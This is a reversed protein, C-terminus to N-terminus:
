EGPRTLGGSLLMGDIRSTALWLNELSNVYDLSTQFYTRQSTLLELYGFEGDAYGRQVLALSETATPLIEDRYHRVQQQANEYRNMADALRHQIALEVRQVERRAATLEAYARHINGQNRDFLKLPVAVSVSAVTDESANNFRTGAELEINPVRGARQRAVNCRAREVESWAKALEPSHGLLRSLAEGWTLEAPTQELKDELPQREMGAIGVVAALQQWAAVHDNRANDLKLQASQLEIRAELLDVRSVERAELLRQATDVGERGIAVLNKQLTVTRQAAMTRYAAARVDNIVRRRQIEWQRRAAAIEHSVVARNLRLKGATVFEQAVFAGQQGATGEDGIEEGLYGAVPNPYLGTQVYKGRLAEINRAAQALTPNSAAALQELEALTLYDASAEAALPPPDPLPVGLRLATRHESWAETRGPSDTTRVSATSHTAPASDALPASHPLRLVRLASSEPRDTPHPEEAAARASILAVCSILLLVSWTARANPPSPM